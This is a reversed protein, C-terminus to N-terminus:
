RTPNEQLDRDRDHLSKSTSQIQIQVEMGEAGIAHPLLAGGEGVTIVNM